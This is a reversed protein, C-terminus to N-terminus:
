EQLLRKFFSDSFRIDDFPCGTMGQTMRKSRMKQLISIIDARDLFKQTVFVHSRRHDICVNQVPAPMTHPTRGITQLPLKSHIIRFGYLIYSLRIGKRLM